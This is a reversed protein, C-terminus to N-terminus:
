QFFSPKRRFEKKAIESLMRKEDAIDLYQTISAGRNVRKEALWERLFINLADEYLSARNRQFNQSNDYVMCLLTLLLPNRALEKTASHESANLMTWCREATKM